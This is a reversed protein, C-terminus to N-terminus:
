MAIYIILPYAMHRRYSRGMVQQAVSGVLDCAFSPCWDAAVMAAEPVVTVQPILMLSASDNRLVMAFIAWLIFFILYFVINLFICTSPNLHTSFQHEFCLTSPHIFCIWEGLCPDLFYTWMTPPKPFLDLFHNVGTAELRELLQCWEASGNEHNVQVRGRFSNLHITSRM